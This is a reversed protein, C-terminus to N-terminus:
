EAERIDEALADLQRVLDEAKERLAPRAALWAHDAVAVKFSLAAVQTRDAAEFAPLSMISRRGDQKRKTAHTAAVSGGIAALREGPVPAPAPVAGIAKATANDVLVLRLGLAEMWVEAMASARLTGSPCVETGFSFLFGAKGSPRRNQELKAGYRDAWGAREDLREGTWGIAHRRAILSSTIDGRSHVILPAFPARADPALTPM